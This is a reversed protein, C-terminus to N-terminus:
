VGDEHGPQEKSPSPSGSVVVGRAMRDVWQINPFGETYYTWKEKSDKSQVYGKRQLIEIMNNYEWEDPATFNCLNYTRGTLSTAKSKKRCADSCTLRTRFEKPGGCISCKTAWKILQRKYEEKCEVSCTSTHPTPTKKKVRSYRKDKFMIGCM